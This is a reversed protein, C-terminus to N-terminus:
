RRHAVIQIAGRTLQWIACISLLLGFGSNGKDMVTNETHIRKEDTCFVPNARLARLEM